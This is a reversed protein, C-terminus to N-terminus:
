AGTDDLPAGVVVLDGAFAVSTGFFDSSGPTPNPISALLIGSPGDFVYASGADSAGTDDRPAGVVVMDGSIAVSSGFSDFSAPAPNAITRIFAGTVANFVHVAGSDTGLADDRYAGVALLNGSMAVSFGFNDYAAPTPNQITRILVGTRMNYVDVVGSDIGGSDNQIAGVALWDGSAAVSYGSYDLSSPAPNSITHQPAGTSPSYLYITGADFAATDDWYSTVILTTSSAAVAAGFFDGQGPTPNGLTRILVGSTADFQYASGADTAGTNDRYSGVLLTNGSISLAFAFNDGVEPTPNNITRNLNGTSISYIYASGANVAGADERYSGVAILDGSISVA